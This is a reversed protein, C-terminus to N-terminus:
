EFAGEALTEVATSLSGKSTMFILTPKQKLEDFKHLLEVGRYPKMEIDTLIVEVPQVSFLNLVEPVSSASFVEYHANELMKIVLIRTIEDDEVVLIRKTEM